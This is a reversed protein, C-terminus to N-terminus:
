NKGKQDAMRRERGRGWLLLILREAGPLGSAEKSKTKLKEREQDNTVVSLQSCPEESAHIPSTQKM